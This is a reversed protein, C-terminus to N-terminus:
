PLSRKNVYLSQGPKSVFDTPRDKDPNSVAYKLIDGDLEYIGPLSKGKNPGADSIIDLQKPSKTPDLKFVGTRVQGGTNLTYKDGQITLTTTQLEAVPVKKGDVEAEVRKWVGQLKALEKKAADDQAHVAALIIGCALTALLAKMRM